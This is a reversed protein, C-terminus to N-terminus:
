LLHGFYKEFRKTRVAGPTYTDHNGPVITCTRPDDALEGLVERVGRFEMDLAYATLDGSVILHEAVHHRFDNAIQRITSPADEYDRARGGVTLKYMAVWRRWVLRWLPLKAYDATIHVDSCHLFRM